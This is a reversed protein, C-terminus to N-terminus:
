PKFLRKEVFNTVYWRNAAISDIGAAWTAFNLYALKLDSWEVPYRWTEPIDLAFPEGGNTRYYRGASPESADASTGFLKPDVLDTPPHDVLHIERGRGAGAYRNKYIFPNYPAAGLQNPALPPDFRLTAVVPVAPKRPCENFTNFFACRGTLGTKTLTNVSPALIVVAERQKAEPVLSV